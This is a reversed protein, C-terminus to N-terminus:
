KWYGQPIDTITISDTRVSSAAVLGLGGVVNTYVQVPEALPNDQANSYLILSNLYTYYDKTIEKYDMYIRVSDEDYAYLGFSALFSYEKGDFFDDSIVLDKTYWANLVAPDDSYLHGSNLDDYQTLEGTHTDYRHMWHRERISFGYFNEVNAVDNINIKLFYQKDGWESIVSSTDVTIVSEGFPVTTTVAATKDDKTVVFRYETRAKVTSGTLEYWGVERHTLKGLSTGNEFVEVNATEVYSQTNSDDLACRSRGVNIQIISDKELMGNLVLHIDAEPLDIDLEKQCASALVIFVLALIYPIKNM